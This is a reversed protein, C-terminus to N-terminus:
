RLETWTTRRHIHKSVCLCFVRVVAAAAAVVVVVIVVVVVVIVFLRALNSASWNMGVYVTSNM